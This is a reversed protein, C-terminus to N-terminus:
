LNMDRNRESVERPLEVGGPGFRSALQIFTGILLGLERQNAALEMVEMLQDYPLQEVPHSREPMQDLRPILEQLLAQMSLVIHTLDGSWASLAISECARNVALDLKGLELAILADNLLCKQIGEVHGLKEYAM